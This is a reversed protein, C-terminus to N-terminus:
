RAPGWLIGELLRMTENSGAVAISGLSQVRNTDLSELPGAPTAASGGCEMVIGLAAAVDINRLKSRLDIFAHGRGVAVYAIELAASGLSRIKYGGRLAAVVEALKVAADPHEIYVYLFRTREKPPKLRTGGEFCGHGAAFSIPPGNFVPAVAGALPKGDASYFAISVSAWPICNSYNKSGDLPDLLVVVDGEGPLVGAEESVIPYRVGEDRLMDVIFSEAELDARITEGSVSRGYDGTCALDRLMGAAAGAVRVALSRLELPGLL